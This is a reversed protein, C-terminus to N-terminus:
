VTHQGYEFIWIFCYQKNPKITKIKVKFLCEFLIIISIFLFFSSFWNKEFKLATLFKNIVEWNTNGLISKPQFLSYLVYVLLNRRLCNFVNTCRLSYFLTFCSVVVEAAFARSQALVPQVVRWVRSAVDVLPSMLGSMIKKVVDVACSGHKNVAESSCCLYKCTVELDWSESHMLCVHSMELCHPLLTQLVLTGASYWM